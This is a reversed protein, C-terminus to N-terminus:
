DNCVATYVVKGETLKRINRTVGYQLLAEADPGLVEFKRLPSLDMIAAKERCAWYEEIAGHSDYHTPLWFNRYDVFQRTLASTRPHFGTERTLKAESDPTVRHSIAMSFKREAPYVRLHIDTPVWANSPDVDDPCASSACVLDKEARMMVYDGPRSWPEDFVLMNHEDFMTNYFLNLAPWGKRAAVGYRDLQGNFNDTCNVHGPYGFDEYYKANCALGFTDHRGV